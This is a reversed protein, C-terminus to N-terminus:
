IAIAQALHKFYDVVDGAVFDIKVIMDKIGAQEHKPATMIADVVSQLPMINTGSLGEVTIIAQTDIGKEELFLLLWKQFATKRPKRTIAEPPHGAAVLQSINIATM